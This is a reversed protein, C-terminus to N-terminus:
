ELPWGKGEKRQPHKCGYKPLNEKYVTIALNKGKTNCGCINCYSLQGDYKGFECSACIEERLKRVNEPVREGFLMAEAAYIASQVSLKRIQFLEHLLKDIGLCECDVIKINFPNSILNLYFWSSKYLIKEEVDLTAAYFSVTPKLLFFYDCSVGDIDKPLTQRLKEIDQWASIIIIIDYDKHGNEKTLLSGTLLIKNPIGLATKIRQYTDYPYHLSVPRSYAAIVKQLFEDNASAYNRLFLKLAFLIEQEKTLIRGNFPGNHMKCPGNCWLNSVELPKGFYSAAVECFNNQRFKCNPKHDYTFYSQM